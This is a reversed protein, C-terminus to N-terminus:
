DSRVVDVSLVSLHFELGSLFWVPNNNKYKFTNANKQLVPDGVIRFYFLLIVTEEELYVLIM